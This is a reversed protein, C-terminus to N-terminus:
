MEHKEYTNYILPLQFQVDLLVHEYKFHVQPIMLLIDLVPQLIM